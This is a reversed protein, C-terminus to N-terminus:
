WLVRKQTKRQAWGAMHHPLSPAQGSNGTGLGKSRPLIKKKRVRSRKKKKKKEGMLSIQTM